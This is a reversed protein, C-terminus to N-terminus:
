QMHLQMYDNTGLVSVSARASGKVVAAPLKLDVEETLAGGTLIIHCYIQKVKLSNM